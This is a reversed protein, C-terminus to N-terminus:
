MVIIEGDEEDSDMLPQDWEAMNRNFRVPRGALKRKVRKWVIVTALICALILIVSGIGLAILEKSHTQIWGSRLVHRIRDLSGNNAAPKIDLIHCMLPYLDLIDIVGPRYGQKFAPGYAILYPHMSPFFPSYGHAGYTVNPFKTSHGCKSANLIYQPTVMVVIDAIRRNHSYHFKEPIKQKKYVKILGKTEKEATKFDKYLSELTTSSSNTILFKTSGCTWFIYSEPDVYKDINIYNSTNYDIMGHDSTFIFNIRDFVDLKKLSQMLYITVDDLRSLCKALQPSNTGHVHGVEDPEEFYLSVFSPPDSKNFWGVVLDVRDKWPMLNENEAFPKGYSSNPLLSVEQGKIKVDYGPWFCNGSKHGQKENTVWIPEGSDWWRSDNTMMTFSANFVPDYINNAIIGHSEPYLGTVISYHNPLTEGPFVNQVYDPKSGAQAIKTLTPLSDRYKELYDYRFGDYSILLVFNQSEDVARANVSRCIALLLVVTFFWSFTSKSRIRFWYYFKM